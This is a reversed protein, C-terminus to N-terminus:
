SPHFTDANEMWQNVHVFTYNHLATYDATRRRTIEAFSSVEDGLGASVICVSGIVVTPRQELFHVDSTLKERFARQAESSNILSPIPYLGKALYRRLGADYDIAPTGATVQMLSAQVESRNPFSTNDYSIMTSTIRDGEPQQTSNIKATFRFKLFLWLNAKM